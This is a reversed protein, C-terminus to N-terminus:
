RVRNAQWKMDLDGGLDPEGSLPSDGKGEGEAKGRSISDRGTEFSHIFYKKKFVM